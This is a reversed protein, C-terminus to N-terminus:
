SDAWQSHTTQNNETSVLKVLQKNTDGGQDYFCLFEGIKLVEAM